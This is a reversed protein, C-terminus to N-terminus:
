AYGEKIKWYWSLAERAEHMRKDISCRTLITWNHDKSLWSTVDQVANAVLLAAYGLFTCPKVWRVEFNGENDMEHSIARQCWPCWALYTRDFVLHWEVHVLDRLYVPAYTRKNCDECWGLEVLGDLAAQEGFMPWEWPPLKAWNTFDSADKGTPCGYCEKLNM